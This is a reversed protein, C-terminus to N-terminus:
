RNIHESLRRNFYDSNNIKIKRPIKHYFGKLGPISIDCWEIIMDNCFHHPIKFKHNGTRGFRLIMFYESNHTKFDLYVNTKKHTLTNDNKKKLKTIIPSVGDGHIWDAPYEMKFVYYKM